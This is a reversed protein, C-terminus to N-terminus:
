YVRQRETWTVGAATDVRQVQQGGTLQHRGAVVAPGDHTSAADNALHLRDRQRLLRAAAAIVDGVGVVDRAVREVVTPPQQVRPEAAAVDADEMEVGTLRESM